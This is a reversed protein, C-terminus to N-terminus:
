VVFRPVDLDVPGADVGLLELVADDVDDGADGERRDGLVHVPRVRIGEFRESSTTMTRPSPAQPPAPESVLTTSCGTSSDCRLTSWASCSSGSSPSSSCDVRPLSSGSSTRSASSGCESASC